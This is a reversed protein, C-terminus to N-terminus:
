PPARIFQREGSTPRARVNTPESPPPCSLGNGSVSMSKRECIRNRAPDAEGPPRPLGETNHQRDRNSHASMSTEGQLAEPSRPGRRETSGDLVRHVPRLLGQAEQQHVLDWVGTAYAQYSSWPYENPQDCLGMRVPNDHIHRVLVWLYREDDCLKAHYRDQFVHGRVGLRRNHHVAFRRQVYYMVKALPTNGRRCLLHVHNPLLAYALIRLDFREAAERLLSLYFEYDTATYFIRQRQDGYATVHYVSGPLDIRRRRPM